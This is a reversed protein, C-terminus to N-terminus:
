LNLSFVIILTVAYLICEDGGGCRYFVYAVAPNMNLYCECSACLKDSKEVIAAKRIMGETQGTGSDLDTSKTVHVQSPMIMPILDKVIPLYSM